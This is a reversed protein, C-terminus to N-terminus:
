ITEHQRTNSEVKGGIETQVNMLHKGVSSEKNVSSSGSAGAPVPLKPNATPNYISQNTEIVQQVLSRIDDMSQEEVIPPYPVNFTAEKIPSPKKKGGMRPNNANKQKGYNLGANGSSQRQGKQIAKSMIPSARVGMPSDTGDAMINQNFVSTRNRTGYSKNYKPQSYKFKTSKGHSDRIVSLDYNTPTGDGKGHLDAHERHKDYTITNLLNTLEVTKELANGSTLYYEYEYSHSYEKFFQDYFPQNAESQTKMVRHSSANSSLQPAGQSMHSQPQTQPVHSDQHIAQTGMTVPQHMHLHYAPLANQPNAYIPINSTYQPQFHTFMIRTKGMYRDRICM